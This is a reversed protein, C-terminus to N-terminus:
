AVEEMSSSFHPYKLKLLNEFPILEATLPEWILDDNGKHLHHNLKHKEHEYNFGNKNLLLLFRFIQLDRKRFDKHKSIRLIQRQLNEISVIADDQKNLILSTIIYLIRSWFDWGISDKSVEEKFLISKRALLYDGEALAMYVKYIRFRALEFENFLLINTDNILENIIERAVKYNESYFYCLFEHELALYFNRTGPNLYLKAYNLCKLAEPYNYLHMESLTLNVYVIGLREKRKLSKNENILSLIKYGTKKANEFESTLNYLTFEHYFKYYEILASKTYIVEKRLLEIEYQLNDIKSKIATKGDLHKLYHNMQDAKNLANYCHMYFQIKKDIEIFVKEGGKLGLTTKKLLLYELLIPYFEFQISTNIIEDLLTELLKIKKGKFRLIQFALAKKLVNKKANDVADIHSNSEESYTNTLFDIIKNRTRYVLKRYKEEVDVAKYLKKLVQIKEPENESVSFIDFLNETLSFEKASSESKSITAKFEVKEKESLLQILEYLETYYM